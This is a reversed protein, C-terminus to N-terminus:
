WKGRYRGSLYLTTCRCVREKIVIIRREIFPEHENAATLNLNPAGIIDTLLTQLAAFEGDAMVTTICFGHKYYFNYM